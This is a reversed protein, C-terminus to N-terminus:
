PSTSVSGNQNGGIIELVQRLVEADDDLGFFYDHDNIGDDTRTYYLIAAAILSKNESTVSPMLGLLHVARTYVAYDKTKEVPYSVQNLKHENKMEVLHSELSNKLENVTPLKNEVNALIGDFVDQVVQRLIPKRVARTM